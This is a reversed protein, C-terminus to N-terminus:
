MAIKRQAEYYKEMLDNRTKWMSQMANESQIGRYHMLAYRLKLLSATERKVSSNRRPFNWWRYIICLPYYMCEALLYILLDFYLYM